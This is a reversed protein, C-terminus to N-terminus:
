CFSPFNVEEDKRGEEQSSFKEEEREGSNKGNANRLEKKIRMYM